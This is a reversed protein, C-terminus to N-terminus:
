QSRSFTRIQRVPLATLMSGFCTSTANLESSATLRKFTLHCDQDGAQAERAKVATALQSKRLAELFEEFLVSDNPVVEWYARATPM